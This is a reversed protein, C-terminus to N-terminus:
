VIRLGVGQSIMRDEDDFWQGTHCIEIVVQQPKINAAAIHLTLRYTGPGFLYTRSFPKRVIDIGLITKDNPVGLAPNQWYYTKLRESPNIVACVDFSRQMGSSIAKAFIPDDAGRWSLNRSPFSKIEKYSDDAQKQSFSSAYVEVEEARTNGTNEVTLGFVYGNVMQREDNESLSQKARLPTKFHAGVSVSLKPRLIWARIKDQFVTLVSLIVTIIPLAITGTAILWDTMQKQQEPSM